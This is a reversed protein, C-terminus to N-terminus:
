QSIRDMAPWKMFLPSGPAHLLEELLPVHLLLQAQVKRWETVSLVCYDRLGLNTLILSLLKVMKLVMKRAWTENVKDHWWGKVHAPVHDVQHQVLLLVLSVLGPHLHQLLIFFGPLCLYVLLSFLWKIIDAVWYYNNNSNLSAITITYYLSLTCHHYLWTMTM